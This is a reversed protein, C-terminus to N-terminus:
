KGGKKREEVMLNHEGIYENVIYRIQAFNAEQTEIISILKEGQYIRVTCYGGYQQQYTWDYQNIRNKTKIEKLIRM